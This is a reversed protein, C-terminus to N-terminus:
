KLGLTFPLLLANLLLLGYAITMAPPIASPPGDKARATRRTWLFGAGMGLIALGSLLSELALTAPRPKGPSSDVNTALSCM